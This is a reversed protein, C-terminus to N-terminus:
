FRSPVYPCAFAAASTRQTVSISLICVAVNPKIGLMCLCFCGSIGRSAGYTALGIVLGVGGIVFM